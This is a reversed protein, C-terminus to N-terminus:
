LASPCTESSKYSCKQLIMGPLPIAPELANLIKITVLCLALCLALCVTPDKYTDTYHIAVAPNGELFFVGNGSGGVASLCLVSM